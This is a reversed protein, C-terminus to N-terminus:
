SIQLIFINQGTKAQVGIFGDFSGFGFGLYGLYERSRMKSGGLDGREVLGVFRFGGAREDFIKTCVLFSAKM